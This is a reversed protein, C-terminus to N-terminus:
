LVVKEKWYCAVSHIYMRELGEGFDGLPLECQLIAKESVRKSLHEKNCWPLSDEKLCHALLRLKMQTCM